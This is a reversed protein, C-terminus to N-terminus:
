AMAARATRTAAIGTLEQARFHAPHRAARVGLRIGAAASVRIAEAAALIGAVAAEMSVAAVVVAATDAAEVM